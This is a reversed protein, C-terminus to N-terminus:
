QLHKLAMEKNSYQLAILHSNKGFEERKNYTEVIKDAIMEASDDSILFGNYGDKVLDKVAGLDKAIVPLSSFMAELYVLGFTEKFNSLMIFIDADKYIEAIKHRELLGLFCVRKTFGLNEVTNKINQEEIGNGIFTLTANVNNDLLKVFANLVEIHGKGKVFRATCVIKIQEQVSTSINAKTYNFLDSIGLPIVILNNLAIETNRIDNLLDQSVCIVKSANELFTYLKKKSSLLKTKLDYKSKLFTYRESGHLTAYYIQNKLNIKSGVIISAQNGFIVLDYKNSALHNKLFSPWIIFWLKGGWIKRIIRINEIRDEQNNKKGRESTLVTVNHGISALGTALEYCYTGAGGLMPPFELTFILINM